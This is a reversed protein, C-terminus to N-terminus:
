HLVPGKRWCLGAGKHMTIQLTPPLEFGYGYVQVLANAKSINHVSQFLPM